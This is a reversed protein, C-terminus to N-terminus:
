IYFQLKRIFLIMATTIENQMTVVPINQAIGAMLPITGFVSISAEAAEYGAKFVM